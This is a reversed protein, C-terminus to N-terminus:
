RKVCEAADQLNCRDARAPALPAPAAIVRCAQAHRPMAARPTALLALPTANIDRAKTNVSSLAVNPTRRRMELMPANGDGHIEYAESDPLCVRRM